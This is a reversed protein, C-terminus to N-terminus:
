LILIHKDILIAKHISVCGERWPPLACCVSVTILCSWVFWCRCQSGQNQKEKLWYVLLFPDGHWGPCTKLAVLHRSCWFLFSLDIKYFCETVAIRSIYLSKLPDTFAFLWLSLKHSLFFFVVNKSNVIYQYDAMIQIKLTWPAWTGM